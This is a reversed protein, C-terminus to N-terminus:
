SLIKTKSITEPPEANVSLLNNVLIVSFFRLSKLLPWRDMFIGERSHCLFTLPKQM